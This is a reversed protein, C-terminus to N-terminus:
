LELYELIAELAERPDKYIEARNGAKQLGELWKKQKPTPYNKPAKFEIYFAGYKGRPVPLCVDPVGAKRGEAKFYMGRRIAQVGGGYSENPIAYM